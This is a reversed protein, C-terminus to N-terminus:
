VTPPLATMLDSLHSDQSIKVPYLSGDRYQLETVSANAVWPINQMEEAGKGTTKWLAARIPTAHTALVM